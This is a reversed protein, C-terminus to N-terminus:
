SLDEIEIGFHYIKKSRLWKSIGCGLDFSVDNRPCIRVRPTSLFEAEAPFATGSLRVVPRAILVLM